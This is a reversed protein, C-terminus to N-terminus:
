ENSKNRVDFIFSGITIEVIEDKTVINTILKTDGNVSFNNDKIIYAIGKNNLIDLVKELKEGIYELM